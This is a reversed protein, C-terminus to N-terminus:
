VMIIAGIPCANVCIGWGVCILPSDPMTFATEQKLVKRECRDVALCVGDECNEPNCKQYNIIAVKRPM